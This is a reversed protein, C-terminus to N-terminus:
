IKGRPTINSWGRLAMAPRSSPNQMFDIMINEIFQRDGVQQRSRTVTAGEPANNIVVNTTVTQDGGGIKHNPIITGGQSGMRLVEPGREGVLYDRNAGVPGGDKRAALDGLALGATMAANAYGSVRAMNALAEAQPLPMGSMTASAKVGAYASNAAVIQKLVEVGQVIAFGAKAMDSSKDQGMQMIEGVRAVTNGITNVKFEQIQANREADELDLRNLEDLQWKKIAKVTDASDKAMEPNAKAVREAVSIEYEAQQNILERQSLLSQQIRDYQAMMAAEQSGGGKAGKGSRIKTLDEQLKTELAVETAAAQEKTRIRAEVAADLAAIDRAHQDLRLQEETKISNEVAYLERELARIRKQARDEASQAAEKDSESPGATGAAMAKNLAEIKNANKEYDGSLERLQQQLKAQEPTVAKLTSLYAEYQNALETPSGASPLGSLTEKLTASFQEATANLAKHEDHVAKIASAEQQYAALANAKRIDGSVSEFLDKATSTTQSLSQQLLAIESRITQGFADKGAKELARLKDTLEAVGDESATTALDDLDKVREGLEEMAKSSANIANFLSGGLVAGLAVATGAIAGFAGFVGLLQPLQQALATTASTGSAIQVFFDQVQFSANTLNQSARRQARAAREAAVEMEAAARRQAQAAEAAAKKQERSLKQASDSVKDGAAAMSNLAAEGKKLESIDVKFVLSTDEAM